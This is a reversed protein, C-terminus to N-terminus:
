EASNSLIRHEARRIVGPGLIQLAPRADVDSLHRTVVCTRSRLDETASRGESGSGLPQRLNAATISGPTWMGYALNGQTLRSFMSAVLAGDGEKADWEDRGEDKRDQLDLGTLKGDQSHGDSSNRNQM